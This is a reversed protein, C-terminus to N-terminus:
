LGKATEERHTNGEAYIHTRARANKANLLRNWNKEDDNETEKHREVM